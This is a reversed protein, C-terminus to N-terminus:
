GLLACYFICHSDFFLIGRYRFRPWAGWFDYLYPGSSWKAGCNWVSMKEWVTIFKKV